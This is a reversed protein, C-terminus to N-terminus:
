IKIYKEQTVEGNVFNETLKTMKESTETDASLGSVVLSFVLSVIFIDLIYAVMREFFGSNM